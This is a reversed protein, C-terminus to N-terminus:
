KRCTLSRFRALTSECNTLHTRDGRFIIPLPSRAQKVTNGLEAGLSHRERM